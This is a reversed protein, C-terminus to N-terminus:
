RSENTWDCEHDLASEVLVLSATAVTAQGEDPVATSTHWAEETAGLPLFPLQHTESERTRKPGRSM